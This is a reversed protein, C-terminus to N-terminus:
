EQFMNMVLKIRGGFFGTLERGYSDVDKNAM